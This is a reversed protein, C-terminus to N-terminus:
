GGQVVKIGLILAALLIPTGFIIFWWSKQKEKLSEENTTAIDIAVSDKFIQEVLTKGDKTNPKGTVAPIPYISREDLLQFWLGTDIDQVLENPDLLWGALKADDSICGKLVTPETVVRRGDETYIRCLQARTKIKGILNKTNLNLNILAM